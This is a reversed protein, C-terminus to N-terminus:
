GALIRRVDAIHEVAARGASAVLRQYEDLSVIMQETSDLRELMLTAEMAVDPRYKFLFNTMASRADRVRSSEVISHPAGALRSPKVNRYPDFTGGDARQLTSEGTAGRSWDAADIQSLQSEL